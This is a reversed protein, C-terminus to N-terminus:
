DPFAAKRGVANREICPAPQLEGATPARAEPGIIELLAYREVQERGIREQRVLKVAVYRKGIQAEGTFARTDAKRALRSPLAGADVDTGPKHEHRVAHLLLCLAAGHAHFAMYKGM